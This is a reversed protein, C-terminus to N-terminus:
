TSASKKSGLAVVDDVMDNWIQKLVGVQEEVPSAMRRMSAAMRDAVDHFDIGQAHGDHMDAMPLFVSDASMTSIQPKMVVQLSILMSILPQLSLRQCVTEEVERAHAIEYSDPLIPVRM